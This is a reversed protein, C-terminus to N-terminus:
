ILDELDVPEVNPNKIVKGTESYLIRGNDQYMREMNNDHVRRIAENLDWGMARAYGYIVYTLDALEKLELEPNEGFSAENVWETHEEQILNWMTDALDEGPEQGATAQYHNVMKSVNMTNIEEPTWYMYFDLAENM